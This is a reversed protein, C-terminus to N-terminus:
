EAKRVEYKYPSGMSVLDDVYKRAEIETDFSLEKGFSTMREWRDYVNM